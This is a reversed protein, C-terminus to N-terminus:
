LLYNIVFPRFKWVCKAPVIFYTNFLEKNHNQYFYMSSEMSYMCIESKLNGHPYEQMILGSINKQNFPYPLECKIIGPNSTSTISSLDFYLTIQHGIINYDISAMFDYICNGTFKVDIFGRYNNSLAVNSLNFKGSLNIPKDINITTNISTITDIKIPKQISIYDKDSTIMNTNLVGEVILENACLVKEIVTKKAIINGTNDNPILNDYVINSFNATIATIHNFDTHNSECQNFCTHNSEYQNFGTHNSECQNFSTHNSECKNSECKNSETHILVPHNFNITEIYPYYTDDDFCTNKIGNKENKILIDDYCM